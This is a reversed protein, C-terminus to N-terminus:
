FHRSAAIDATERKEQRCSIFYKYIKSRNISDFFGNQNGYYDLVMFLSTNLIYLLQKESVCSHQCGLIKLGNSINLYENYKM